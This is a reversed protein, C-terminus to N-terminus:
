DFSSGSSDPASPADSASPAPPDPVYREPEPTPGPAARQEEVAPTEVVTERTQAEADQTLLVGPVLGLQEAMLYGGAVGLVSPSSDAVDERRVEEERKRRDPLPFVSGEQQARLPRVPYKSLEVVVSPKAEARSSSPTIGLAREAEKEGARTVDERIVEGTKQSQPPWDSYDVLDVPVPKGAKALEADAAYMRRTNEAKYAKDAARGKRTKLYYIVVIVVAAFLLLYKLDM